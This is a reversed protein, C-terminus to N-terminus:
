AVPGYHVHPQEDDQHTHQFEAQLSILNLQGHHVGREAMLADAFQRVNATLGQLIVAEVCHRHDLHAHMSAVSLDHHDHQLSTLRDALVREHHDYTYSLVAVCNGAPPQRQRDSEIAGRILDRVAESRNAYGKQAILDDFLHALGDDLSITFREM